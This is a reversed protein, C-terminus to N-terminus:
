FEELLLHEITELNQTYNVQDLVFNKYPNKNSFYNLITETEIEDTQKFGVYNPYSSWVYNDLEQSTVLFSSVPNLHIYRSVHILQEDSEIRVAKFAGQFLHGARKNKTNFYKTYSNTFNAVFKSIGNEQTQRLLFHFHNPMLCYALVDILKNLRQLNEAASTQAEKSLNLFHSFRIQPNQHRYYNLTQIGRQYDRETTFTPRKEVGRNFVHYIEENAFIFKRAAAM